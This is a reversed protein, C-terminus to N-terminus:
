PSRLLEICRNVLITHVIPGVLLSGSVSALRMRAPMSTARRFKECPSGAVWRSFMWRMRATASCTPLGTAMRPSRCPGFSRTPVMCSPPTKSVAPSVSMRVVSCMTPAAPRTGTCNSRRGSTTSGSSRMRISSPRSSSTTVATAPLSIVVRTTVPPMRLEFLPRLRGRAAMLMGAMVSFSRSSRAKAMSCPNSQIARENTRVAASTHSRLACIRWSEVNPRWVGTM